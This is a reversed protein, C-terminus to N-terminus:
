FGVIKDGVTLTEGTKANVQITHGNDLEHIVGPQNLVEVEQESPTDIEV